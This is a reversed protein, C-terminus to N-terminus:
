ESSGVGGVDGRLRAIRRAGDDGGERVCSMERMEREVRLAQVLRRVALARRQAVAEVGRTVAHRGTQDTGEAVLGVRGAAHGHHARADGVGLQHRPGRAQRLGDGLRRGEGGGGGGVEAALSADLDTGREGGGQGVDGQRRGRGEEEERKCADDSRVYTLRASAAGPLFWDAASETSSEMQAEARGAPAETKEMGPRTPTVPAAEGESAPARM